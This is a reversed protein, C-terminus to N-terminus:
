AEISPADDHGSDTGEGPKTVWEILFRVPKTLAKHVKLAKSSVSDIKEIWKGLRELVDSNKGSETKLAARETYVFGFLGQLNKRLGKAGYVRYLSIAIRASELAELLAKRLATAIGSTAVSEILANLDTSLDALEDPTLDVESCDDRLAESCFELRAMVEATLHPIAIGERATQLHLPSFVTRIQPFCSLYISHNLKPNLKITSEADDLMENLLVLRRAVEVDQRDNVGLVEVWVELMRKKPDGAIVDKLLAHLRSAPNSEPPM